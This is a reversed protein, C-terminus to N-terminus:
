SSIIFTSTVGAIFMFFIVVYHVYPSPSAATSVNRPPFGGTALSGFTTCLSEFFDLGAIMLLVTEAVTFLLYIMWLIKATESIRPSIRQKM